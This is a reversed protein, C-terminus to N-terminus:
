STRSALKSALHRDIRGLAEVLADIQSPNDLAGKLAHSWADQMIQWNEGALETPFLHTLRADNEDSERRVLGKEVLGKLVRSFNSTPLGTAAATIGASSGPNSGIFRM